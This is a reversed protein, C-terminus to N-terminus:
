FEKGLAKFLQVYLLLEERSAVNLKAYIRKSHTKITNISLFLKRSIENASYGEAYLDFVAREAASLQKVNTLFQDLIELSFNEQRAKQSLEQSRSSLYEILDDLEPIKTKPATALNDSKLLDLGDTIPKVFLKQGLVFSCIIGAIILLALLSFLLVNLSTISSVIDEQPLLIAAAWHEGAFVSDDPYLKVPEHLGLYLTDKNEQYSYFYRRNEIIRLLSHNRAAVRASYGGALLSRKLDLSEDGLPALVCFLHNFHRHAPMYSLKFLMASIEFGCVGFANGQSDLLPASCIMIEESTGPLTLAGSWYYLRSLPLHPNAAAAALPKYYYPAASIDFEMTWQAHLSLANNRGIAPFGCLLTINPTSSSIINPEMNKLYLGAKSHSANELTPNVTADLIFFVGSCQSVLLAFLARAYQSSIIEELMEPHEKLGTAPVGMRGASAEISASLSTALDITRLSILGYDRTIENATHLLESAFMKESESLGASLVGTLILIAIVGVFITMALATMFFFLRRGLSVGATGGPSSDQKGPNFM